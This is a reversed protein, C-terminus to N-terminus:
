RRRRMAPREVVLYTLASLITSLLASLLLIPVFGRGVADTVGRIALLGDIVPLHWLYFSYSIVGMFVIVRNGFLALTLANGNVGSLVLLATALSVVPTWLYFIPYNAWYHQRDGALWYASILIMMLAVVPLVHHGLLHRAWAPLRARNVQVMAALMGLGFMDLAGPLQYAAVVRQPVPADALWTVVAFRWAVMVFLSGTILWWGRGPQLLLALFPLALYFSFEVPLTWWVGNLPAAGVPPPMFLMFLHRALEGGDPLPRPWQLAAAILVLVALQAYYAPFVRLVRRWLYQPTAPRTRLGAQWEAFPLSLLYGSLVFFMTVGAFGISIPPTLDLMVGGVAWVFSPKGTQFWVHFLFVSLAAWGRIGTLVPQHRADESLWHAM